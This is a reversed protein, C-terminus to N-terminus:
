TGSANTNVLTYKEKTIIGDKKKFFFTTVAPKTVKRLSPSYNNFRLFELSTDQLRISLIM